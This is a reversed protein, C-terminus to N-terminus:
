GYYEPQKCQVVAELAEAVREKGSWGGGRSRLGLLQACEGFYAELQQAAQRQQQAAPAGSAPPAASLFRATIQSLKDQLPLLAAPRVGTASSCLAAAATFPPGAAPM